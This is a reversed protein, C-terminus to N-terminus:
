THLDDVGQQSGSEVVSFGRHMVLGLARHGVVQARWLRPKRLLACFKSICRLLPTEGDLSYVFM